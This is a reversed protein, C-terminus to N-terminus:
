RWAEWAVWALPVLGLLDAMAIKRLPGAPAGARAYVVLFGVMSLAVVLSAVRRAEQSWIAMLAAVLVAFFLAGRHILLVGAEGAPDVGYLREVLAPAFLPLAPMLHLGALLAWGIRTTTEM